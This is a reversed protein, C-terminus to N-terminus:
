IQRHLSSPATSGDIRQPTKWLAELTAIDHDTLPAISVERRFARWSTKKRLYPRFGCALCGRISALNSEEVYTIAWRAGAARGQEAVQSMAYAMIGKGRYREPVFAGELLVEDEALRPFYGDYYASLRENDDSFILFQFFCPRDGGTTGVYVHSSVGAEITKMRQARDIVAKTPRGRRDDLGLLAIDSKTFSRIAVPLSAPPAVFRRGLDRRFGYSIEESVFERGIEEFVAGFCGNFLLLLAATVKQISGAM